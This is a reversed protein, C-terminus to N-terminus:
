GAGNLLACEAAVQMLPADASLEDAEAKVAALFDDLRMPADMGDLQVQLDPFQQRIQALRGAAAGQEASARPTEVAGTADTAATDVPPAGDGRAPAGAQDPTAEAARTANLEELVMRRMTPSLPAIEAEYEALTRGGDELDRALMRARGQLAEFEPSFEDAARAEDLAARLIAPEHQKAYAELAAVNGNAPAPDVGLLRLRDEVDQLRAATDAESAARQAAMMQQEFDLVREGRIASQVLDVFAGSDAGEPLYGRQIAMEALTDTANGGGRFIGAPNNRVSSADGTIDLKQAIDVGGVERVWALFDGKVEPSLSEPKIRERALFADLPEYAPRGTADAVSVENGMAIQSEARGLADAHADATAGPNSAERQEAQLLVRAADEAERSVGASSSPRRMGRLAAATFVAPVLTSVALGVPDLPDYGEAIRDYGGRALIERTLAQQAMFGGPGGALYLGATQALTRGALPLAALALGAGQVAGAKLATSDDVGQRQLERTATLAEEGGALAFGALGAPAGFVVKSAGRAFGYLVQEAASADEPNPALGERVGTRVEDAMRRAMDDAPTEGALRGMTAGFPQLLELASASIEAGAAAVGRTAATLMSWASFKPEPRLVDIRAPMAALTDPSHLELISM